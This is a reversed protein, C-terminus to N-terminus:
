ALRHQICYAVKKPDFGAGGKEANCRRCLIQLNDTDSYWSHREAKSQRYGIRNFYSSVDEIHDLTLDTKSHCRECESDSTIMHAAAGSFNSPFFMARASLKYDPSPDGDDVSDSFDELGQSELFRDLEEGTLYVDTPYDM